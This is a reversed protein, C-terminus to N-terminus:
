GRGTARVDPVLRAIIGPHNVDLTGDLIHAKIKKEDPQHYTLPLKSLDTVAELEVKMKQSTGKLKPPAVVPASSASVLLENAELDKAVGVDFANAAKEFGKETTANEVAKTAAEKRAEAEAALQRAKAREAEQEALVRQEEQYIALARADLLAKSRAKLAALPDLWKKAPGNVNADRAQDYARALELRRTNIANHGKTSQALLDAALKAAAEDHIGINEPLTEARKLLAAAWEQTIAPVVDLPKALAGSQDDSALLKQSM